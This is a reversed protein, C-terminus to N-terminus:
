EVALHTYTYNTQKEEKLSSEVRASYRGGYSFVLFCYLALIQLSGDASVQSNMGSSIFKCLTPPYFHLMSESTLTLAAGQLENNADVTM